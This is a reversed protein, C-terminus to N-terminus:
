TQSWFDLLVVKGRYDSLKFKKGDQDEAEIDPAVKGVTLNRLSYLEVKAMKGVTRHRFELEVDAYKAAARELLDEAEKMLKAAQKADTESLDEARRWVVKALFVTAPGQVEDRNDKELINRLLNESPKDSSYAMLTCVRALRKASVDTLYKDTFQRYYKEVEVNLKAVDDKQLAEVYEKGYAETIQKVFDRNKKIEELLRARRTRRQALALCAEAQVDKRPSKELVTALFSSESASHDNLLNGCVGALRESELHDKLLINLAKSLTEDKDPTRGLPTRNTAVWVLADVAAPDKPNKEALELFKVGFDPYKEKLMKPKEEDSAERYAKFFEQQAKSYEKVLAQYQEAPTGPNDKPDDMAGLAPLALLLVLVGGAIRHM